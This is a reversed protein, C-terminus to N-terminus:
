CATMEGAYKRKNGKRTIKDIVPRISASNGRAGGSDRRIRDAHCCKKGWWTDLAALGPWLANERGVGLTHLIQRSKIDCSKTRRLQGYKKNPIRERQKSGQGNPRM